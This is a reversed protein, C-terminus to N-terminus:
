DRDKENPRVSLKPEWRLGKILVLFIVEIEPKLFPSIYCPPVFHTFTLERIASFTAAGGGLFGFALITKNLLKFYIPSWNHIHL